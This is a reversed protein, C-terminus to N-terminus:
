RRKRRLPGYVLAFGLIAGASMVELGDSLVSEGGTAESLHFLTHAIVSVTFLVMLWVASRHPSRMTILFYVAPLGATFIAAASLLSWVSM